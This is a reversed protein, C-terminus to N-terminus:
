TSQILGSNVALGTTSGHRVEVAVELGRTTSGQNVDTGYGPRTLFSDGAALITQGRNTMISGANEVETGMLLVFGGAEVVTTPDSTVIRAGAEVRVAGGADVLDSSCVDSSWDSFLLEYATM